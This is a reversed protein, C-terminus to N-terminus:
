FGRGLFGLDLGVLRALIRLAVDQELKPKLFLVLVSGDLQIHVLEPLSAKALEPPLPGSLHLRLQRDQVEIRVVGLEACRLRLARVIFLRAVPDVLAGFRDRTSQALAAIDSPRRCADLHKHIEFKLAPTELYTDPIYADVQLGLTQKVEDSTRGGLAASAKVKAVAEPGQAEAVSRKMRLVAEGLLKTYLEYGIADIHGSQEGGLLNGAGRLELDRMALKFGAGLHAYEQIADLRDRAEQTLEKNGPVLFYAFAQHRFRGIRGRIQHLEALGFFHANNVFLTNANPIDIGSEIISTSVLCQTRGQKYADMVRAIRDEPMQGHVVDLTMEPVLRSLKFVISDIDQVKNHVFFIQGKRELERAIASKILQDDWPAVRTEVALREAPAEALVSIDRLGLLSFHLTRPIPTASLTLVDPPVTARHVGPVEPAPAVKKRLPAISLSAPYHQEIAADIQARTAVVRHIPLGGKAELAAITEEDLPNVMALTLRKHDIDVPIVGYRLAEDGTLAALARPKVAYGTPDVQPVWAHRAIAAALDVASVQGGGVLAEDLPLGKRTATARADDAQEATLIGLEVLMAALPEDGTRALSFAEPANAPDVPAPAVVDAHGRLARLKEKHKVGFRHEEDIILLGLEAFRLQETLLAHTGILIDIEGKAVRELVAKREAPGAFRTLGAIEFGFGSFRETFTEVHQEALLTTPALVAVQRDGSAAKFAARMAVETKGFGVDGCLLRDMAIPSEMDVKIERVAALQDETEEYPFAAEFRRQEPGDAPYAIGGAAVRRAHSELLEGSLDEIAKEAKARKKAWAAGGIKALDPRAGSAGVYKQVLDIGDVPVYLKSEEAFELVLYDELFGRKELTAMGRFVGIGHRLHVVLDNRKLDTLSSLPSGGAVKAGVRRKAPQREALEYDHIVLLGQELDRWGASLRGIRIEAAVGHDSCHGQLERKAEENRALFVLGPVTTGSGSASGRGRAGPASPGHAIAPTPAESLALKVEALGRRLDGRFRDVGLSAGDLAGEELQRAFRLERRRHDVNLRGRLPLDGVVAIPGPPLQEWLSKTALSGSATALVAEDARAISEQTFPDFRRIAEVQDGFFEIRLADNGIFPFVDVIGGRVALEGRGEVTGVVKYGAEVLSEVLGQIDHEEGPKLIVSSNAVEGLDPVPQQVARHNAVLVAGAAYAEIAAVRRNQATRDIDATGDEVADFRDIEPLVAAVVGLEELDDRLTGPDAAIVLRPWGSPLSAALGALLGPVLGGHCAGIVLERDGLLAERAARVRHDDVYRDRLGRM